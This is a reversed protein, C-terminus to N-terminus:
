NDHILAVFSVHRFQPPPPLSLSGMPFDLGNLIRRKTADRTSELLDHLTGTRLLNADSHKRM